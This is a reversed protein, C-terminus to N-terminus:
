PEGLQRLARQAGEHNPQRQLLSRLTEKARERDGSAVYVRALNLYLMDSDPAVRLGYQLAALADNGKGSQVYAVALNNIASANKPDKVLAEKFLAIAEDLRGQRGVLLGLRDATTSDNPDVEMARRYLKEAESARNLRSLALAANTLGYVSNPALSLMREFCKLAETNNGEAMAVGGLNNWVEPSRRNLELARNLNVQAEPLRNLELHVQGLALWAKFNGDWQRVSAELYPLAQDPYGAGVFAAGLKYYNRSPHGHYWGAFPLAFKARDSQQLTRLDSQLEPVPRLGPYIRNAYGNEDLLILMPISLPARWDFLYRRFLAYSAALDASVEKLNLVEVPVGDPARDAGDTLLLFGPGKRREPLPVPELLWTPALQVSNDGNVASVPILRRTQFPTKEIQEKGETITYLAGAALDTFTQVQGSPWRVTLKQVASEQNLGFHLKKTHQSLYSGNATLFRTVRLSGAEVDVRAGIADRNSRTGRLAVMLSKRSTGASSRLARVQPGLRSKLFLDLCGDGDFDTVACTRTDDAFDLGSIGSVDYFRGGRWAYIVNPERGNWSAEERIYQNISNWGNEYDPAPEEREPSKGVVHRWFFSMMDATGSNTLMGAAIVLEPTGDNDIDIGDSAWAWRGMAAGATDPMEEFRVSDGGSAPVAQYLSNGKTHRGYAERLEPTKLHPFHPDAVVRQGAPTWMNSVYLEPKGDHNFDQWSAAMGPGMDEVGAEAAADAFRGERNRYLNNRGFDNAVYLSPWGSNDYDCWAAAFSYRNNNQQIGTAATVDEFFGTGDAELRNRLLFNPPGNQADHYPVPYRYRDESQFYVYTCLYLDVRGDRDYDAAGMGTFTGEVPKAFRFADKRLTFRGRGDNLFFLPGSPMLLVLDQSGSNRWDIFLACSTDDLLDLGAAAAIDQYTGNSQRKLLRNPLGGPQCVYIEDWGDQDIDAASIGNSGYIDIGCASDMRSRWYPSGRLLQQRWAPSTGLLAESCDEMWPHAARARTEELPTFRQLEGQTNWEMRWRGSRYEIEGNALRGKGEFRVEHHALAIFRLHELTGFSDLWKKLGDAFSGPEGPFQAVAISGDVQRWQAAVPSVGEFQSALALTRTQALANLRQELMMAEAEGTYEDQGPIMYRRLAEYPGPKKPETPFIRVEPDDAARAFPLAGLLPVALFGRRSWRLSSTQVGRSKM